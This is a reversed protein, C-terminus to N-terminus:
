DAPLPPKEVLVPCTAHRVFGSVVSGMTLRRMGTRGHSAAVILSASMSDAFDPIRVEPRASTVEDFEVQHGSKEGYERALGAVYNTLVADVPLEDADTACHVIWPAVGLEIAWAIGLPVAHESLDSGDVAIVVPGDFTVSDVKPGVLMIPGFTRRLVDDAVSGVMASSRGRGHTAMVVVSGPREEVYSEIEGAVTTQALRVVTNVAVDGSHLRGAGQALLRMAAIEDAGRDEVTLLTLEAALVKALSCGVAAATWAAQSDDVPVVIEQMVSETDRNPTKTPMKRM